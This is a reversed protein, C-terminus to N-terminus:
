YLKGAGMYVVDRYVGSWGLSLENLCKPIGGNKMWRPTRRKSKSLFYLRIVTVVCWGLCVRIMVLPRYLPGLSLDSAYIRLAMFGQLDCNQSGWQREFLWMLIFNLFVVCVWLCMLVGSLSFGREAGDVEVEICDVFGSMCRVKEMWVHDLKTEM